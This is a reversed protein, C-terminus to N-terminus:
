PPIAATPLPTTSGAQHPRVEGHACHFALLLGPTGYLSQDTHNCLQKDTDYANTAGREGSTMNSNSLSEETSITWHANDRRPHKQLGGLHEAAFTSLVQILPLCPISTGTRGPLATATPLPIALARVQANHTTLLPRPLLRASGDLGVDDPVGQVIVFGPDIIARLLSERSLEGSVLAAYPMRTIPPNAATWLTLESEEPFPADGKGNLFEFWSGSSKEPAPLETLQRGALPALARLFGAEFTSRKLEGCDWEVSLQGANEVTIQKIGVSLPLRTVLPSASLKRESQAEVHSTDRCADRLWLSHFCFTSGDGFLIEAERSSKNARAAIISNAGASITLGRTSGTWRCLSVSLRRAALRYM